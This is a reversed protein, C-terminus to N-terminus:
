TELHGGRGFFFISLPPIRDSWDSNKESKQIKKLKVLGRLWCLIDLTIFCYTNFDLYISLILGIWWLSDPYDIMEDKFM